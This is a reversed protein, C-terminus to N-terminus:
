PSPPFYGLLDEICFIRLWEPVKGKSAIALRIRERSQLTVCGLLVGWGTQRLEERLKWMVWLKSSTWASSALLHNAWPALLRAPQNKCEYAEAQKASIEAWVIDINRTSIPAKGAGMFVIADRTMDEPKRGMQQLKMLLVTESIAAVFEGGPCSPDSGADGRAMAADFDRALEQLASWTRKCADHPLCAMLRPRIRDIEDGSFGKRLGHNSIFEALAQLMMPHEVALRALDRVSQSDCFAIRAHPGQTEEIAICLGAELVRRPM